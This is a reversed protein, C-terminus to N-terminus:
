VMSYGYFRDPFASVAAEVSVEDGPTRAILSVREVGRRDLEAVWARALEVPDQPPITWELIPGLAAADPLKKQIALSTYFRHSFFHVHTDCVPLEGWPTEVM